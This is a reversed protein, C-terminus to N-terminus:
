ARELLSVIQTDSLAHLTYVRCRSLLASNIEFSPNETTAGILRISGREVWPLFADQQARNFRHIEDIFLITRTGWSAAKEAAAMVQRIEKIGALVASFEIFTAKTTEAIIKALTTKGVGPPGWFIMSSADDREIALRLPKGEGLLHQQGAFEAITRPRMREALPTQKTHKPAAIPSTDFLSM